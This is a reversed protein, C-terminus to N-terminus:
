QATCSLGCTSADRDKDLQRYSHTDGRGSASSMGINQKHGYVVDQQLPSVIVDCMGKFSPSRLSLACSIVSVFNTCPGEEHLFQVTNKMTLLREM